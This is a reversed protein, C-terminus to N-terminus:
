QAAAELARQQQEMAADLTQQYQQRVQEGYAEPTTARTILLKTGNSAGESSASSVGNPLAVGAGPPPLAPRTAQLQQKIVLGTILLALLM